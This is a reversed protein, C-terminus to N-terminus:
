ISEYCRGMIKSRINSCFGPQRGWWHRVTKYSVVYENDKYSNDMLVKTLSDLEASGNEPFAREFNTMIFVNGEAKQAFVSGNMTIFLALLFLISLLSKM